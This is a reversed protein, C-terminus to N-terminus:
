IAQHSKHHAQCPILQAEQGGLVEIERYEKRSMCVLNKDCLRVNDM